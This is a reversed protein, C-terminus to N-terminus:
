DRRGSFPEDIAVKWTTVLMPLGVDLTGYGLRTTVVFKLRGPGHGSVRFDQVAIGHERGAKSRWLALPRTQGKPEGTAARALDASAVVFRQAAVADFRPVSGRDVPGAEVAITVDQLDGRRTVNEVHASVVGHRVTRGLGTPVDFRFVAHKAAATVRGEGVFRAGTRSERGDPAAFFVTIQENPGRLVTRRVDYDVLPIAITEDSGVARAYPDRLTFDVVAVDAADFGKVILDAQWRSEVVSDIVALDPGGAADVAAVATRTEIEYRLKDLRASAAPTPPALAALRDLLPLGIKKLADYAANRTAADEDGLEAVLREIRTPALGE